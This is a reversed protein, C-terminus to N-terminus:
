SPTTGGMHGKAASAASRESGRRYRGRWDNLRVHIVDNLNRLSDKIPNVTSREGYYWEVPVEQIRYGSKQALFLIEVDFGTVAPGKIEQEGSYLVTRSFIDHAVESRYCKFGSQTDQIGRVAIIQVLLHFAASMVQRYWPLHYRRARWGVVVDAGEELAKLLKGLEEIPMSLDADCQFIYQGQAALIGTRVTYAKGRHPNRILRLYPKASQLSEVAQATEDASGDDVVILEYRYPQAELYTFVKPLNGPLRRAENYAPIVISLYPRNEQTV